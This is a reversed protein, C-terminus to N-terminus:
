LPSTGQEQVVVDAGLGAPPRGQFDTAPWPSSEAAPIPPGCPRWRQHARDGRLGGGGRHRRGCPPYRLVPHLSCAFPETLVANEDSVGDPVPSSNPATPSFTRAGAEGTDRCTGTIFGPALRGSTFNRCLSFDGRRCAPCLETFGGPSARFSPTSWSGSAWKSAPVKAAWPTSPEWTKTASPSPSPRLHSSPRALRALHDHQRRQRM